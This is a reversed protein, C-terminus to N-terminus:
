PNVPVRSLYEELAAMVIDRIYLRSTGTSKEIVASRLRRHMEVPIDVTLKIRGPGKVGVWEDGSVAPKRTKIEFKKM